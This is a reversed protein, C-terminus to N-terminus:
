SYELIVINEMKNKKIKSILFLFELNFTLLLSQMHAISSPIFSSHEPILM